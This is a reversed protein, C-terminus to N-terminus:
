RVMDWRAQTCYKKVTKNRWVFFYWFFWQCIKNIMKFYPVCFKQTKGFIIPM